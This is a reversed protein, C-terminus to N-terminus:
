KCHPRYLKRLLSFHKLHPAALAPLYYFWCSAVSQPCGPLRSWCHQSAVCLRHQTISTLYLNRAYIPFLMCKKEESGSLDVHPCVVICSPTLSIPQSLLQRTNYFVSENKACRIEKYRMELEKISLVMRFTINICRKSRQWERLLFHFWCYYQLRRFEVWHLNRHRCYPSKISTWVVFIGIRALNNKCIFKQGTCCDDQSINSRHGGHFGDHCGQCWISIKWWVVNAEDLVLLCALVSAKGKYLQGRRQYFM